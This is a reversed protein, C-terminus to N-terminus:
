FFNFKKQYKLKLFNSIKLFISLISLFFFVLEFGFDGKCTRKVYKWVMKCKVVKM